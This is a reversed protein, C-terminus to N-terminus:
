PRWPGPSQRTTALESVRQRLVRLIEALEAVGVLDPANTRTLEEDLEAWPKVESTVLAFGDLGEGALAEPVGKRRSGVGAGEPLQAWQRCRPCREVGSRFGAVAVVGALVTAGVM